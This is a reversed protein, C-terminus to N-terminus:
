EIGLHKDSIYNVLDEYLGELQGKTAKSHIYLRGDLNKTYIRYIDQLNDLNYNNIEYLMKTLRMCESKLVKKTCQYKM